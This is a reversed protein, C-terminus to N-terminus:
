EGSKKRLLFLEGDDNYVNGSVVVCVGDGGAIITIIQYMDIVFLSEVVIILLLSDVHTDHTQLDAKVLLM